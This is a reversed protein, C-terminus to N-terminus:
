RLLFSQHNLQKMLSYTFINPLFDANEKLVKVPIDSDQTVKKHKLKM